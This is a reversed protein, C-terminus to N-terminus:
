ALTGGFARYQLQSVLASTFLSSGPTASPQSSSPSQSIILFAMSYCTVLTEKRFLRLSSPGASFFTLGITYVKPSVSADRVDPWQEREVRQHYFTSVHFEALVPRRITASLALDAKQGFTQFLSGHSVYQTNAVQWLAFVAGNIGFIGWFIVNSPIRNIKQSIRQWFGFRPPRPANFSGRAGSTSGRHTANWNRSPSFMQLIGSSPRARCAATLHTRTALQGPRPSLRLPSLLTRSLMVTGLLLVIQIQDTPSFPSHFCGTEKSLVLAMDCWM